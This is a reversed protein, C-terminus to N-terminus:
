KGRQSDADGQSLPEQLLTLPVGHARGLGDLQLRSHFWGGWYCSMSCPGLPAVVWQHKPM